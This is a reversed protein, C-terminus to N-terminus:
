GASRRRPRDRARSGAETVRATLYARQGTLFNLEGLFRGPRADVVVVDGDPGRRVIEVEGELVVFFDYEDDGARYLVDGAAVARETGFPALEALEADSLTASSADLRPTARRGHFATLSHREGSGRLRPARPHVERRVPLAARRAPRPRPHRRADGRALEGALGHHEFEPFVESHLRRDPQRACDRYTAFGALTDGVYIEYRHWDPNDAVRVTTTPWGALRGLAGWSGGPDQSADGSGCPTHTQSARM